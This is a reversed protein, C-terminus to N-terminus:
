ILALKCLIGEKDSPSQPFNGYLTNYRIHCCIDLILIRSEGLATYTNCNYVLQLVKIKEQLCVDNTSYNILNKRVAVITDHARHNGPRLFGNKDSVMSLDAPYAEGM